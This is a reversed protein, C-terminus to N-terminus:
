KNNLMLYGLKVKEIDIIKGALVSATKAANIEADSAKGFAISDFMRMMGHSLLDCNEPLQYEQKKMVEALVSKEEKLVTKSSTDTEIIEISQMFLDLENETFVFRRSDTALVIKSHVAKVSEFIYKKKMLHQKEQYEFSKGQLIGEIQKLRQM